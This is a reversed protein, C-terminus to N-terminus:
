AAAAHLREIVELREDATARLDNIVQEKTELQLHLSHTKGLDVVLRDILALREEAAVRLEAIVEESEAIALEVQIRRM